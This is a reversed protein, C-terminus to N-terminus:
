NLLEYLKPVYNQLVGLIGNAILQVAIALVFFGFVRKMAGMGDDGILKLIYESSRLFLWVLLSLITIAIFSSLYGTQENLNETLSIVVSIAGPGSIMPIAMPTFSINDKNQAAIKESDTLTTLLKDRVVLEWGIKAVIIGGAIRLVGLSIGFYELIAKGAFLFAALVIFVFIATQQAQQNSYQKYEKYKQRYKKYELHYKEVLENFYKETEQNHKDLQVRYEEVKRQYDEEDREEQPEKPEQPESPKEPKIPKEPPQLLSLFVPIAGIPNAIAFLPVFTGVIERFISNNLM